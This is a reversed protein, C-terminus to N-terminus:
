GADTGGCKSALDRLEPESLRYSLRDAVQKAGLREYFAIGRVNSAKVPWDIRSCGHEAAYRAVWSMLATGAGLGRASSRVYLEKLWCHRRKGTGRLREWAALRVQVSALTSPPEPTGGAGHLGLWYLAWPVVVVVLCFAFLAAIAIRRVIFARNM